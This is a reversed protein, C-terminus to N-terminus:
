NLISNEREIRKVIQMKLISEAFQYTTEQVSKWDKSTIESAIVHEGVKPFAKQTKHSSGLEEFMTRIAAVSVTQDQHEEDKYYYGVLVPQKIKRFVEPKMSHSVLSKLSILGEIRYQNNWYQEGLDNRPERTIYKDGFISRALQLGWPKDLLWTSENFFDVLPSYAIIAHVDPDQSALYLALTAGTSTGMLIVKKGLKKGIALAQQATSLLSEPSLHIFADPDKLGHQSLRALYLNCGYRRAFELHIPRGEAYSATFGHLYVLCYETPKKGVSDYWVIRAQNDAKIQPNSNEARNLSDELMALTNPLSLSSVQLQPTEPRPGMLVAGVLVLLIFVSWSWVKKM